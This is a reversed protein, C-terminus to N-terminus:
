SKEKEYKENLTELYTTFLNLYFINDEMLNKFSGSYNIIDDLRFKELAQKDEDFTERIINLNPDYCIGSFKLVFEIGGDVNGITGKEPSPPNMIGVGLNIFFLGGGEYIKLHPFDEKIKQIFKHKIM